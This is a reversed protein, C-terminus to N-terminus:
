ATRRVRRFAALGGLATLLLMGAAPVPIPSPNRGYITVHSIDAVNGNNANEFPSTYTGSTANLLYAVYVDPDINGGGGKFVLMIDEFLSFANSVIQWTGSQLVNPTGTLDLGLVGTVAGTPGDDKGLFVWDDFGFADDKNVQPPPPNLFDNNVSGLFCGETGTVKGAV